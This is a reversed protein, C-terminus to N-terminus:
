RSTAAVVGDIEHHVPDIQIIRAVVLDRKLRGDARDLLELHVIGSEAGFVAPVRAGDHVDSGAAAGVLPMTFRVFVEAVVRHVGAIESVRLSNWLGRELAVLEASVAAAGDSLIPGEEIQAVFAQSM